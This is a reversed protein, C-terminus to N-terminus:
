NLSLARHLFKTKNEATFGFCVTAAHNLIRRITALSTLLENGAAMQPYLPSCTCTQQSNSYRSGARPGKKVCLTCHTPGAHCLVISLNPLM